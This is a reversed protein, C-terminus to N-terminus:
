NSLLNIIKQSPSIDLSKLKAILSKLKEQQNAAKYNDALLQYARLSYPNADIAEEFATTSNDARGNLKELIGKTVNYESIFYPEGKASVKGFLENAKQANGTTALLEIYKLNDEKQLSPQKQLFGQVLSMASDKQGTQNYYSALRLDYDSRANGSAALIRQAENLTAIAKDYAGNSALADAYFNRYGYNQPKKEVLDKLVNLADAYGLSSRLVAAFAAADDKRDRLYTSVGPGNEAYDDAVKIAEGVMSNNKYLERLQIAVKAAEQYDDELSTAKKLYSIQESVAQKREILGEETKKQTLSAFAVYVPAYNENIEKARNLWEDAKIWEKNGAHLNAYAIFAPLYNKDYQLATDLYLAALQTNGARVAGNSLGLYVQSWNSAMASKDGALYANHRKVLKDLFEYMEPDKTKLDATTNMSKFDLPHVKVKEFYAPFTQAFYESENNQSYYDLTRKEKMATYYHHRVQRNEEDTLVTGHFLHVYEHLVVNRDEFAGREVYEIAAAGSGVGRIDMWQRNDFTTSTRFFTSNMTEALDHHLPPVHFTRGLRSLFPFYVKATYMQNWVMAQVVGGQYYTMDTFVREFNEMDNIQTHNLIYSISDYNALYPIRKSRIIQALANHAPGYHKKMVLIHRFINEASDLRVGRDMNFAMYYFSGRYLLPIVSKPHGKEVERTIAIAKKIDNQQYAEDASKLKSRVEDDDAEAYDAYTLNTHGNGWHWNTRFHLPNLALAIEWQAAMANLQTADIRRWIAYGYSFRANADFPDIELSKKLPEESLEPQQNWFFVDAKLLYAGSSLPNKNLIDNAIEMAAGYNKQLLRAKGLMLQIKESYNKKLASECLSAADSLRWAQIELFAKEAIADANDKDRSLIANVLAEAGKYDNNLILYRSQLFRYDDSSKKMSRIADSAEKWMGVKLMRQVTVFRTKGDATAKLQARLGAQLQNLAENAARTDDPNISQGSVNFQWAIFCVILFNIKKMMM